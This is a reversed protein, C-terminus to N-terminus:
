YPPLEDSLELHPLEETATPPTTTAAAGGPILTAMRVACTDRGPILDTMLYYTSGVFMEPDFGRHPEKIGMNVAHQYLQSKKGDRPNYYVSQGCVISCRQGKLKPFRPDNIEFEIALYCKGPYKENPIDYTIGTCTAFYMGPTRLQLEPQFQPRSPKIFV